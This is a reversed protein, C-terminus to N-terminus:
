VSPATRALSLGQFNNANSIAEASRPRVVYIQLPDSVKPDDWVYSVLPDPSDAVAAGTMAGGTIYGYPQAIPSRRTLLKTDQASGTISTFLIGALLITRYTNFHFKM